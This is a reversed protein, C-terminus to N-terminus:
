EGSGQEVAEGAGAGMAAGKQLHKRLIERVAAQEEANGSTLGKEIWRLTSPSTM